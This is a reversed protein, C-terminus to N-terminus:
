APSAARSPTGKRMFAGAVEATAAESGQTGSLWDLVAAKAGDAIVRGEEM